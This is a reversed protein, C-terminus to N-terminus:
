SFVDVVKMRGSADKMINESKATDIDQLGSKAICEVFQRWRPPAEDLDVYNRSGPKRNFVENYDVGHVLSSVLPEFWSFGDLDSEDLPFLREMVVYHSYGDVGKGLSKSDFVRVVCPAKPVDLDARPGRTIFFKIVKDSGLEHVDGERGSSLFKGVGDPIDDPWQKRFSELYGHGSASIIRAIRALDM